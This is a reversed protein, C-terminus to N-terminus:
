AIGTHHTDAASLADHRALFRRTADGARRAREIVPLDAFAACPAEVSLPLEPPLARVLDHLPLEGEGPYLRGGRAEARLLEPAPRALPADCIQAYGLLAPPVTAIDTPAGGSRALHLADFLIGANAQAADEIMRRADALSRVQCYPIFELMVKLDFSAAAECFRAFNALMRPRDPDNGITLLYRAGFRAATEIVPALNGVDTDPWLWFAEADLVSLRTDALRREAERLLPENGIVEPFPDSAAPPILRVGVCDFGGAAAASVLEPLSADLVTLHALSLRKMGPVIERIGEQRTGGYRAGDRTLTLM